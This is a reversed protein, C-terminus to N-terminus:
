ALQNVSTEGDILHCLIMLRKENAMAGLLDSAERAVRDLETIKANRM